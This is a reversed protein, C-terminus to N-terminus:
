HWHPHHCCFGIYWDRGAKGDKFPHKRGSKEAIYHYFKKEEETTLATAPGPRPDIAVLDDVRSNLTTVPLGHKRAAQRLGRDHIKVAEVAKTMSTVDWQL